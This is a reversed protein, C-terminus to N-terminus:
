KNIHSVAENFILRFAAKQIEGYWVKEVRCNTLFVEDPLDLPCSSKCLLKNVCTNCHEGRSLNMKNSNALEIHNIHGIIHSEDTHPCTRINGNIDISLIDSMDAGCNTTELIPDGRLLKGAYELVSYPITSEYIDCLLLPTEEASKNFITPVGDVYSDLMQLYHQELYESVIEKFEILNDGQIVHAFSQGQPSNVDVMAITCGDADLANSQEQYTRGLSFSLSNCKLGHELIKDRFFDNIEFLNYNTNTVSCLFGYTVNPLEDLMKLSQIVKPQDLPDKGRLKAQAKADHSITLLVHSKLKSFFEVHKERIASGNTTIGFSMGERDFFEMIGVM